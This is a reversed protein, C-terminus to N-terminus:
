QMKSSKTQRWINDAANNNTVLVTDVLQGLARPAEMWVQMAANLIELRYHDTKSGSEFATLARLNREVDTTTDCIGLYTLGLRVVCHRSSRFHDRDAKSRCADIMKCWTRENDGEEAYIAKTMALTSTFQIRVDHADCNEKAALDQFLALRMAEPLSAGSCDFARMAKRHCYDPFTSQMYTRTVDYLKKAHYFAQQPITPWPAPDSSSFVLTTRNSRCVFNGM